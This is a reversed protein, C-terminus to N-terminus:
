EIVRDALMLLEPPISLGLAKATKKNIVLELKTPQEVPLDAPNAGKLIKDVYTAARRYNDSVSQGYSFLGGAEPMASNMASIPVRRKIGAAAIQQRLEFFMPDPLDILVQANQETLSDFASELQDGSRLEIVLVRVGFGSAATRVNALAPPHSPNSPNYLVAARSVAPVLSRLMELQKVSHGGPSELHRDCNGGPRALSKVLGTDVPDSANAFVIPVTSSARQAARTAPTGDTVIVDVRPRVLEEALEPLREYQGDAFRWEM